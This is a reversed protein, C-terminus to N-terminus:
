TLLRRPIVRFFAGTRTYVGGSSLPVNQKHCLLFEQESAMMAANEYDEFNHEKLESPQRDSPSNHAPNSDLIVNPRCSFTWIFKM